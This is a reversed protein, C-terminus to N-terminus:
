NVDDDLEEEPLVEDVEISIGSAQAIQILTQISIEDIKGDYLQAIVVPSFNLDKAADQQSHYQGEVHAATMKFIHQKLAIEKEHM